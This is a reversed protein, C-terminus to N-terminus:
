EIVYLAENPFFSNALISMVISKVDETRWLTNLITGQNSTKKAEVLRPNKEDFYLDDPSCFTIKNSM